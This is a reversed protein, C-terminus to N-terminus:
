ALGAALGEIEQHAREHPKGVFVRLAAELQERPFRDLCYKRQLCDVTEAKVHLDKVNGALQTEARYLNRHHPIVRLVCAHVQRAPRSREEVYQPDSIQVEM